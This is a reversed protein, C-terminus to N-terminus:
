ECRLVRREDSTTSTTSTMSCMLLAFTAGMPLTSGCADGGGSKRRGDYKDSARLTTVISSLNLM